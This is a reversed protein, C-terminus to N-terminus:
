QIEEQNADEQVGYRNTGKIASKSEELKPLLHQPHLDRNIGLNPEVIEKKMKRIEKINDKIVNEGMNVMSDREQAILNGSVRIAMVDQAGKEMIEESDYSSEGSQM